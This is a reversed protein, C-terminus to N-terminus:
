WSQADHASSGAHPQHMRSPRHAAPVDVPEVSPMHEPEPPQDYVAELQGVSDPHM